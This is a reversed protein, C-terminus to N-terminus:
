SSFLDLTYLFQWTMRASLSGKLYFLFCKEDNKFPKWCKKVWLLTKSHNRSIIHLYRVIFLDVFRKLLFWGASNKILFLLDVSPVPPARYFFINWLFKAINLLFCRHQLRKKLFSKILFISLCLHKGTFITFNRLAGIKFFM